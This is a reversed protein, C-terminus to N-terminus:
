IKKATLEDFAIFPSGNCHRKNRAKVPVALM